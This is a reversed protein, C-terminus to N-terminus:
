GRAGADNAVGDLADGDNMSSLATFGPIRVAPQPMSLHLM